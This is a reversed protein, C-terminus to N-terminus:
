RRTDFLSKLNAEQTTDLQPINVFLREKAMSLAVYRIRQEEANLNPSLLYGICILAM